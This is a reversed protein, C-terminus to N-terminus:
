NSFIIKKSRKLTYKNRNKILSYAAKTFIIIQSKNNNVNITNELIMGEQMSPLFVEASKKDESLIVVANSTYNKKSSKEKLQIREDFLRVCTQKILSYTYGASAVCKQKNKDSGIQVEQSYFNSSFIVVM